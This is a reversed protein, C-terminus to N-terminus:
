MWMPDRAGPPGQLRGQLRVSASACSAGTDQQSGNIPEGRRISYSCTDEKQRAQSDVNRPLPWEPFAARLRIRIGDPWSSRKFRGDISATLRTWLFLLSADTADSGVGCEGRSIVLIVGFLTGAREIDWPPVPVHAQSLQSLRAGVDSDGVVLTETTGLPPDTPTAPLTAM